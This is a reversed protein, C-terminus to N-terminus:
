KPPFGIRLLWKRDFSAAVPEKTARTAEANALPANAFTGRTLESPRSRSMEARTAETAAVIALIPGGLRRSTTPGSIFTACHRLRQRAPAVGISGRGSLSSPRLSRTRCGVGNQLM